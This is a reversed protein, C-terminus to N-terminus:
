FIFYEDDNQLLNLMDITLGVYGRVPHWANAHSPKDAIITNIANEGYIKTAQEINM